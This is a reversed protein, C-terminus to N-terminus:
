SKSFFMLCFSFTNMEAKIENKDNFLSQEFLARFVNNYPLSGGSGVIKIIKKHSINGQVELHGLVESNKIIKTLFYHWLATGWVVNYKTSVAGSGM